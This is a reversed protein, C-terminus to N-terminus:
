KRIGYNNIKNLKLLKEWGTNCGGSCVERTLKFNSRYHKIDKSVEKKCYPCYVTKM